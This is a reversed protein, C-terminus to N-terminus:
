CSEFDVPYKVGVNTRVNLAGMAVGVILSSDNM